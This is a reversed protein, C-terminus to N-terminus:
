SQGPVPRLQWAWSLTETVLVSPIPLPKISAAIGAVAEMVKGVSLSNSLVYEGDPLDFLMGQSGCVTRRAGAKAMLEHLLQYHKATAGHLVIRVTYDPM